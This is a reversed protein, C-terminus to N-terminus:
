SIGRLHEIALNAASDPNPLPLIEASIYGKYDIEELTKIIHVFDLHGSGPAWRNSDAVHVHSLYYKSNKISEYMSVEEINM